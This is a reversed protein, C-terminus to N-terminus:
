HMQCKVNIQVLILNICCRPDQCLIMKIHTIVFFIIIQKQLVAEFEM